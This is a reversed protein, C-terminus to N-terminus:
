TVRSKDGVLVSVFSSRHVQVSFRRGGLSPDVDIAVDVRLADLIEAARGLHGVPGPARERINTTSETADLTPELKGVVATTAVVVAAEFAVGFRVLQVVGSENAAVTRPRTGLSM